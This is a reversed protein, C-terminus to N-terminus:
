NLSVARVGRERMRELLKRQVDIEMDDLLETAPTVKLTTESKSTVDLRDRYKTPKEAKALFILLRDSFVKEKYPKQYVIGGARRSFVPIAEPDDAECPVMIPQGNYFKMQEVGEIARRRIEWELLDLSIEHAKEFAKAYADTGYKKETKMWVYHGERCIGAMRAAHTINACQAYAVLFKRQNRTLSPDDHFPMIGLPLKGQTRRFERKGFRIADDFAKHKKQWRRFKKVTIGFKLLMATETVGSAAYAYARFAYSNDYTIM